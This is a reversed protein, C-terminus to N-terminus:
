KSGDAPTGKALFEQASGRKGRPAFSVTYVGDTDFVSQPGTTKAGTFIRRFDDSNEPMDWRDDPTM